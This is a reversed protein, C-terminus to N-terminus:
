AEDDTFGNTRDAAAVWHQQSVSVLGDAIGWRAEPWAALAEGFLAPCAANSAPQSDAHAVYM